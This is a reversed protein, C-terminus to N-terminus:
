GESRIKRMVGAYLRPNIVQLTSMLEDMILWMQGSDKGEMEQAFETNGFNAVTSQNQASNSYSYEPIPERDDKEYHELITYYSALKVCTNANPNRAGQCEAIAELLDNKTIM